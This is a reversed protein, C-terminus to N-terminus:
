DCTVPAQNGGSQQCPAAAMGYRKFCLPQEHGLAQSQDIITIVNQISLDAM